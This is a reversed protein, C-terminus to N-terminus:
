LPTIGKKTHSAMRTTSSNHKGTIQRPSTLSNNQIAGTSSVELNPRCMKEGDWVQGCWCVGETNIICTGTGCCRSDDNM